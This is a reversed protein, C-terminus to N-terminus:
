SKDGLMVAICFLLASTIAFLLGLLVVLQFAPTDGERAYQVIVRYSLYFLTFASAVLM